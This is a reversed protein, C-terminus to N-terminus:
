LYNKFEGETDSKVTNFYALCENWTDEEVEDDTFYGMLGEFDFIENLVEKVPFKQNLATHMVAIADDASVIFSYKYIEEIAKYLMEETQDGDLYILYETALDEMYDVEDMVDDIIM